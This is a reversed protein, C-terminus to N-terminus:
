SWRVFPHDLGLNGGCVFQYSWGWLRTSVWRWLYKAGMSLMGGMSRIFARSVGSTSWWRLFDDIKKSKKGKKGKETQQTYLMWTVVTYVLSLWVAYCESGNSRRLEDVRGPEATCRTVERVARNSMSPKAGIFISSASIEIYHRYSLWCINHLLMAKM